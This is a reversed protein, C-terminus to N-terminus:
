PVMMESKTQFFFTNGWGCMYSTNKLINWFKRPDNKSSILLQRKHKAYSYKKDRCINKFKNRLNKYIDLHHRSNTLRFQRLARHKDRKASRCANDFWPTQFSVRSYSKCLMDEASKKIIDIFSSLSDLLFVKNNNYIQKPVEESGIDEKHKKIVQAKVRQAISKNRM